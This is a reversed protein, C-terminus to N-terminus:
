WRRGPRRSPGGPRRASWPVQGPPPRPVDVPVEGRDGVLDAGGLDVPEQILGEAPEHGLFGFASAAFGGVAPVEGDVVVLDGEGAGRQDGALEVEGVGEVEVVGDGGAGSALGVEAGGVGEVDAAGDGDAIM